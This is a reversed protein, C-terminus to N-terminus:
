SDVGFFGMPFEPQMPDQPFAPAPTGQSSLCTCALLASLSLPSTAGPAPHRSSCISGPLEPCVVFLFELCTHPFIVLKLFCFWGGFHIMQWVTKLGSHTQSSIQFLLMASFCEFFCDGLLHGCLEASFGFLPSRLTSKVKAKKTIAKGARPGPARESSCQKPQVPSGWAGALSGAQPRRQIGDSNPFM